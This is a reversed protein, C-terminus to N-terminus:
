KVFITASPNSPASWGRNNHAAVTFTYRKGRKLGTIM